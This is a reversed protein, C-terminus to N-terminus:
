HAKDNVSRKKKGLIGVSEPFYFLIEVATLLCDATDKNDEKISPLAKLGKMVELYRNRNSKLQLKFAVKKMHQFTRKNYGVRSNLRISERCSRSIYIRAITADVYEQKSLGRTEQTSLLSNAYYVPQQFSLFQLTM